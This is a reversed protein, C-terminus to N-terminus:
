FFLRFPIIEKGDLKIFTIHLVGQFTPHSVVGDGGVVFVVLDQQEFRCPTHVDFVDVLLHFFFARPKLTLGEYM